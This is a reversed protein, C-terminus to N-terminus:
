WCSGMMGSLGVIPLNKSSQSPRRWTAMLQAIFRCRYLLFLVLCQMTHYLELTLKWGSPKFVVNLIQMNICCHMKTIHVKWDSSLRCRQILLFNQFKFGLWSGWGTTGLSLFPARASEVMHKCNSGSIIWWADWCYWADLNWLLSALAESRGEYKSPTGRCICVLVIYTYAICLLICRTLGNFPCEMSSLACLTIVATVVERSEYELETYRASGNRCCHILHISQFWLSDGACAKTTGVKLSGVTRGWELRSHIVSCSNNYLPVHINNM